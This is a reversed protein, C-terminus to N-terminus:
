YSENNQAMKAACGIRLEGERLMGLLSKIPDKMPFTLPGLWFLM